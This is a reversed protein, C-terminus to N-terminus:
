FEFTLHLTYFHDPIQEYIDLVLFHLAVSYNGAWKIILFLTRSEYMIELGFDHYRVLIYEKKMAVRFLYM